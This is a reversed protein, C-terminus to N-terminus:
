RNQWDAKMVTKAVLFRIREREGGGGIERDRMNDRQARREREEEKERMKESIREEERCGERREERERM